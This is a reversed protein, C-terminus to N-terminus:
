DFGPKVDVINWDAVEVGVPGLTLKIAVSAEQVDDIEVGYNSIFDTVSIPGDDLISNGELDRIDIATEEQESFRLVHYKLIYSDENDPDDHIEPIVECKENQAPVNFFDTYAPLGTHAVVIDAKQGDPGIAGKFGKLQVYMDIHSCEFNCTEEVDRLTEPVSIELESFYLEDNGTFFEDSKFWVPEAVKAEDYVKHIHTRDAANGWCVIRYNGPRLYLHIGQHETLAAKDLEYEGALSRDAASYVYMNVKDIKDPFIDTQGDGTYLFDLFVDCSCDSRDERICGTLLCFAAGLLILLGSKM